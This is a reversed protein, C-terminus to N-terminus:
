LAKKPRFISFLGFFVLSVSVSLLIGRVLPSGMFGEGNEPVLVDTIKDIVRDIPEEVASYITGLTEGAIKVTDDVAKVAENVAKVTESAVELTHTIGESANNVLNTIGNEPNTVAQFIEGAAKATEAASKVTEKIARVSESASEMTHNLSQSAETMFDGSKEINQETYVSSNNMKDSM